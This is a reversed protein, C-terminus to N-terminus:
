YGRLIGNMGSLIGTRNYGMGTINWYIGNKSTKGMNWQYEM